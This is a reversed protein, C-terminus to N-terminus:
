IAERLTYTKMFDTVPDDANGNLDHKIMKTYYLKKARAKTTYICGMDMPQILATTNPPLMWVMINPFLSDLVDQPPHARCNDLLLYIQQERGFLENLERQFGNLFWDFFIDQTMWASDSNYYYCPLDEKRINKFCRPNASKGIIIPKFKIGDATTGVCVTFRAKAPKKAKIERKIDVIGRKPISKYQIGGEDFNIMIKLINQTNIFSERALFTTFDATFKVAAEYDNSGKEGKLIYSGLDHRNVFKQVWGISAKFQKVDFNITSYDDQNSPEDPANQIEALATVDTITAALTAVNNMTHSSLHKVFVKNSYVKKKCILCQSYDNVTSILLENSEATNPDEYNPNNIDTIEIDRENKNLIYNIYTQTLADNSVSRQGTQDYIGLLKLREYLEMAAMSAAHLNLPLGNDQSRKVHIVLIEEVDMVIRPRQKPSNCKDNSSAGLNGLDKLKQAAEPNYWTCLTTTKIDKNENDLFWKRINKLTLGAEHLEIAKSKTSFGYRNRTVKPRVAVPAKKQPRGVKKKPKAM